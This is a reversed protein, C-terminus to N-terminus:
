LLDPNLDLDLLDLSLGSPEAGDAPGVRGAPEAAPRALPAIPAAPPAAPDPVNMLRFLLSARM